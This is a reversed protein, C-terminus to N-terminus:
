KRQCEDADETLEHEALDRHQNLAERVEDRLDDGPDVVHKIRLEIGGLEIFKEIEGWLLDGFPGLGPSAAEKPDQRACQAKSKLEQGDDDEREVEAGVGRADLAGDSSPQGVALLADEDRDPIDRHLLSTSEDDGLQRQRKEGREEVADEECGDAHRVPQGHADESADDPLEDGRDAGVDANDQRGNERCEILWQVNHPDDDKGRNVLLYFVVHEGWFNRMGGHVHM